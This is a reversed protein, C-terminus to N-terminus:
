HHQLGVDIIIVQYMTLSELAREIEYDKLYLCGNFFATWYESMFDFRYCYNLTNKKSNPNSVSKAERTELLKEQYSYLTTKLSLQTSLLAEVMLINNFSGIQLQQTDIGVELWYLDCSLNLNHYFDQFFAGKCIETVSKKPTTWNEFTRSALPCRVKYFIDVTDSKDAPDIYLYLYSIAILPIERPNLSKHRHEDEGTNENNIGLMETISTHVLADSTTIM